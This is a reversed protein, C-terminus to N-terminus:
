RAAEHGHHFEFEQLLRGSCADRLVFRLGGGPLDHEALHAPRPMSNEFEEIKQDYESQSLLGQARQTLLDALQNGLDRRSGM